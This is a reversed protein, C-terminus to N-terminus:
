EEPEDRRVLIAARELHKMRAEDRCCPCVRYVIYEVEHRPCEPKRANVATIAGGQSANEWSLRPVLHTPEICRRHLCGAGGECEGRAYAQNHCEHDITHGEPIPGYANEFAVRHAKVNKSKDGRRAPTQSIVGYGNSDITGLYLLCGNDAREAKALLREVTTDHREPLGLPDGYVHARVRHANCLGAHKGSRSRPPNPCGKISCTGHNM